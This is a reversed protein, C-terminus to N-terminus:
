CPLTLVTLSCDALFFISKKLLCCPARILAFAAYAVSSLLRSLTKVVDALSLSTIEIDINLRASVNWSLAREMCIFWFQIFVISAAVAPLLRGGTGSSAAVPGAEGEWLM